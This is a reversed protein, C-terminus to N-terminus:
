AQRVNHGVWITFASLLFKGPALDRHPPKQGASTSGHSDTGERTAKVVIIVAAPNGGFFRPRHTGLLELDPTSNQNLVVTIM